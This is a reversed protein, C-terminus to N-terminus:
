RSFLDSSSGWVFDVFLLGLKNCSISAVTRCTDRRTQPYIAFFCVDATTRTRTSATSIKDCSDFRGCITTPGPVARGVSQALSLDHLNPLLFDGSLIPSVPINDPRGVQGANNLDVEIGPSKDRNETKIPTKSPSVSQRCSQSLHQNHIPNVLRVRTTSASTEVASGFQMADNRFEIPGTSVSKRGGLAVRSRANAPSVLPEAAPLRRSLHPPRSVNRHRKNSAKQGAQDPQSSEGQMAM